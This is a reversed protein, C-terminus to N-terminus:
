MTMLEAMGFCCWFHLPVHGSASDCPRWQKLEDRQRSACVAVVLLREYLTLTVYCHLSECRSRATSGSRYGAHCCDCLFVQNNPQWTCHVAATSPM